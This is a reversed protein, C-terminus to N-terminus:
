NMWRFHWSVTAKPCLAKSKFLHGMPYKPLRPLLLTTSVVLNNYSTVEHYLIPTDTKGTAVNNFNFKFLTDTGSGTKSTLAIWEIQFCLQWMVYGTTNFARGCSITCEVGFTDLVHDCATQIRGHRNLTKLRISYFHAFNKACIQM